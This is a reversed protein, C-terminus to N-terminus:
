RGTTRWAVALGAAGLVLAAAILWRYHGGLHRARELWRTRYFTAASDFDPDPCRHGFHTAWPVYPGQKLYRHYLQRVLEGSAAKGKAGPRYAAARTDIMWGTAHCLVAAFAQSRPPLLDAARSAEGVAVYRYHFRFDPQAVTAAFRVREGKTVFEHGLEVQGLGGDFGGDTPFYDPPGEYGMM